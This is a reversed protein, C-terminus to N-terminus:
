AARATAAGPGFPVHRHGGGSLLEAYLHALGEHAERARENTAAAAAALEIRQRAAYYALDKQSM